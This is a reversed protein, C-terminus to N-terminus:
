TGGEDGANEEQSEFADSPRDAEEANGHDHWAHEIEEYV